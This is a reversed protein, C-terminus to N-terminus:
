YSVEVLRMMKRESDPSNATVGATNCCPPKYELRIRHPNIGYRILQKQVTIARAKALRINAKSGVGGVPDTYARLIILDNSASVRKTLETLNNIEQQTLKSKAFGFYVKSSREPNAIPIVPKPIVPQPLTKVTREPCEEDALCTVYPKLLSEEQGIEYRFYADGTKPTKPTSDQAQANLALLSFMGISLNKM